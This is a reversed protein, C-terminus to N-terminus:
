HHRHQWSRLPIRDQGCRSPDSLAGTQVFKPQQLWVLSRKCLPILKIAVAITVIMVLYAVTGYLTLGPITWMLLVDNGGPVVAAGIGMLFGGSLNGIVEKWNGLKPHFRNKLWNSFIAGAFLAAVAFEIKSGVSLGQGNIFSNIVAAYSWEPTTGYILAACIGITLLYLMTMDRRFVLLWLSLLTICSFGFVVVQKIQSNTALTRETPTNPGFLDLMNDGALWMGLGLGVFSFLYVFHGTGIYAVTGVFCGRNILAGLGLLIAGIFLSARLEIDVPIHVQGTYILLLFLVVGSWSLVVVLGCMWDAKGESVWRDTAAVTCTTVRGLAFGLIFALPIILYPQM